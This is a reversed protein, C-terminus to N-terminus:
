ARRPKAIRILYRAIVEAKAGDSPACLALIGDEVKLPRLPRIWVDFGLSHVEVELISLMEQWVADIDKM